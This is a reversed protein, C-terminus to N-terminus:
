GFLEAAREGIMVATAAPGRRTINPMISIDVVRLGDVGHVRCHQDVVTAADSSPGMRAGCATHLNSTLNAEIWPHLSADSPLDGPLPDVLKAGIRTFAPQHLLEAAVRM